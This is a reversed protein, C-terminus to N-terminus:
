KKSRAAIKVIEECSLELFNFCVSIYSNLLFWADVASYQNPKARKSFNQELETLYEFVPSTSDINELSFSLDRLMQIGSNVVHLTINAIKSMDANLDAIKPNAYYEAMIKIPEDSSSHRQIIDILIMIPDIKEIKDEIERSLQCLHRADQFAAFIRSNVRFLDNIQKLDKVQQNEFFDHFGWGNELTYSRSLVSEDSSMPKEQKILQALSLRVSGSSGDEKLRIQSLLKSHLILENGIVINESYKKYLERLKEKVEEECSNESQSPKIRVSPAMEYENNVRKLISQVENIADTYVATDLKYDVCNIKMSHSEIFAGFLCVIFSLLLKNKQM